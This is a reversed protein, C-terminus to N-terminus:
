FLQKNKLSLIFSLFHTFGSLLLHPSSSPSVSHPSGYYLGITHSFLRSKILPFIFNVLLVIYNMQTVTSQRSDLYFSTNESQSQFCTFLVIFLFLTPLSPRNCCPSPFKLQIRLIGGSNVIMAILLWCLILHWGAGAWGLRSMLILKSFNQFFCDIGKCCGRVKETHVAFSWM